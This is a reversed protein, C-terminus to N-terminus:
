SGHLLGQRAAAVRKAHAFFAVPGHLICAPVVACSNQQREMGGGVVVCERM